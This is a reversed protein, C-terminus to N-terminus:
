EEEEALDWAFETVLTVSYLMVGGKLLLPGEIKGFQIPQQLALGLKQNSLLRMAAELIEPLSKAPAAKSRLASVGILLNYEPVHRYRGQALNLPHLDGGAYLLAIFPARRGLRELEEDADGAPMSFLDASTVTGAEVLTRLEELLADQLDTLVM